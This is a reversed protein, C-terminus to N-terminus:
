SFMEYQESIHRVKINDTKYFPNTKNHYAFQVGSCMELRREMGVAVYCEGFHSHWLGSPGVTKSETAFSVNFHSVRLKVTESAYKKKKLLYTIFM